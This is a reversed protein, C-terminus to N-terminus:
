RENVNEVANLEEIKRKLDLIIFDLEQMKENADRLNEQATLRAEIAECAPCIGVAYAVDDHRESRTGTCVYM